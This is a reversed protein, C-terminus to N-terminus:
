FVVLWSAGVRRAEQLRWLWRPTPRAVGCWLMAQALQTGTTPPPTQCHDRCGRHWYQCRCSPHLRSSRIWMHQSQTKCRHICGPALCSCQSRRSGGKRFELHTDTKTGTDTDTFQHTLSHTLSHVLEIRQCHILKDETTETGGHLTHTPTNNNDCIDVLNAVTM